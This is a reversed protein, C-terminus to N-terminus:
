DQLVEIQSLQWISRSYYSETKYSEDIDFPYIIWLPGKDRVSMEEGNRLYAVIPGGQVADSLPIEVAYDNVAVARLTDGQMGLTQTLDYLSVGVFQQPGETWITTTEFSVPDFAQLMDMDFTAGDPGNKTDIDGSVTLIVAGSPTALDSALIPSSLVVTGVIAAALTKLFM